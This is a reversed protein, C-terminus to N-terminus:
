SVYILKVEGQTNNFSSSLLSLSFFLIHFYELLCMAILKSQIVLSIKILLPECIIAPKEFQEMKQCKLVCLLCNLVCNIM